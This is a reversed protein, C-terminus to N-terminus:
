LPAGKLNINPKHFDYIRPVVKIDEVGASKARDYIERLKRHDLSPMALVVLDANYKLIYRDVEYTEGAVKVGHLYTGIKTKDDDLFCVTHFEPSAQRLSDRIIMEGTHGAGIIVARKGKKVFRGKWLVEQYLRKSIRLLSILMLSLSGDLIFISRPFGKFDPLNMGALFAPVPSLGLILIVLVVESAFLARAMNWLDKIGVYRWTISYLRFFGFFIIKVM